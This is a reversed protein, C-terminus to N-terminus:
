RDHRVRLRERITGLSPLPPTLPAPVILGQGGHENIPRYLEFATPLTLLRKIICPSSEVLMKTEMLSGGTYNRVLKVMQLKRNNWHLMVVSCRWAVTALFADSLDISLHLLDALTDHVAGEDRLPLDEIQEYWQCEKRLYDSASDGQEELLDAYVMRTELCRPNATLQQILSRQDPTM